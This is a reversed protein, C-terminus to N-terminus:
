RLDEPLDIDALVAADQEVHRTPHARLVSRAGEPASTCAALEPWLARRVLAPHGGRGRHRPIFVLAAPDEAEVLGPALWVPGGRISGLQRRSTGIGVPSRPGSSGAVRVTWPSAEKGSRRM